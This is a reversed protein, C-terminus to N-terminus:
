AYLMVLLLSRLGMLLFRTASGPAPAPLTDSPPTPDIGYPTLGYPSMGYM